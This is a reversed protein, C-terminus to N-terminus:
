FKHLHSRSKARVETEVTSSLCTDEGFPQPIRELESKAKEGREEFGILKMTGRGERSLCDFVFVDEGRIREQMWSFVRIM